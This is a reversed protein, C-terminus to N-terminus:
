ADKGAEALGPQPEALSEAAARGAPRPERRTGAAAPCRGRVRRGHRQGRRQHRIRAPGTPACAHGSRRSRGIALRGFRTVRLDRAATWAGGVAARSGIVPRESDAREARAWRGLRGGGAPRRWDTCKVPFHCMKALLGHRASTGCRHWALRDHRLPGKESRWQCGPPGEMGCHASGPVPNLCEFM